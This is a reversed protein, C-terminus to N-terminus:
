CDGVSSRISNNTLLLFKRDQEQLRNIFEEAGPLAVEESILVGDMDILWTNPQEQTHTM